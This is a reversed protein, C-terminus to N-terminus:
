GFCLGCDPCCTSSTSFTFGCAPCTAQEAQPNYVADTFTQDFDALGTAKQHEKKLAALAETLEDERVELLLEAGGCCGKGCSDPDATVLSVIGETALYAHLQKIQIAAGKRIAVLPEGPVIDQLQSSKQDKELVETGSVLSEGCHACLTIDARYEERCTLCYKLEPDITLSM